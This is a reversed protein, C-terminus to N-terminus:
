ARVGHLYYTWAVGPLSALSVFLRAHEGDAQGDAPRYQVAIATQAKRGVQASRPMTLSNSWAAVLPSFILRNNSTSAKDAKKAVVFAPSDCTVTLTDPADAPSRFPLSM